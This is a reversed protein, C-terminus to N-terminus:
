ADMTVEGITSLRVGIGGEVRGEVQIDGTTKMNGTVQLDASLISAPPKAKPAAPKFEAAPKNIPSATEVSKNDPKASPENIKSKSFM